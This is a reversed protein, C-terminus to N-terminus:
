KRGQAALRQFKEHGHKKRGIYAALAKPDRAGRASLKKVLRKFRSGDGLREILFAREEDTFVM